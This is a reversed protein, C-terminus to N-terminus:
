AKETMAVYLGLGVFTGGSLYQQGKRFRRNSRLLQGISGAGFAITLDAALNFCDTILGLVLFQTFIHGQGVDIFQPIFALFFLATKPNLIETIVGQTFANSQRLVPQGSPNVAEPMLTDKALLSRLGLYVLYAGGAYKVVQFALSSAMIMGSIGIAAAVVHFLGGVFLGLASKVGEGRGGHLSRALTYFIAPGPTISLIFASMMFLGLTSGNPM